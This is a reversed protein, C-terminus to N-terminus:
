PTPPTEAPSLLPNSRLSQGQRHSPETTLFTVVVMRLRIEVGHVLSSLFILLVQKAM